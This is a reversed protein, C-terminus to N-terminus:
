TLIQEVGHPLYELSILPEVLINGDGGKDVVKAQVVRKTLVLQFKKWPSLVLAVPCKITDGISINADSRKIWYQRILEAM